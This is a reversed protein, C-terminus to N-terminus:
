VVYFLLLPLAWAAAYGWALLVLWHEARIVEDPAFIFVLPYLASLVVFAMVLLVSILAWKAAWVAMALLVVLRDVLSPRYLGLPSQYPNVVVRQGGCRGSWVAAVSGFRGGSSVGLLALAM